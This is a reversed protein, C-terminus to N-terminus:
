PSMVTITTLQRIWRAARRDSPVVLRFPGEDSPLPQGNKRDALLVVRGSLASDVEALAFAVRYGDAATCLVTTTMAPGRLAAGTPAGSRALLDILAVGEYTAAPDGHASASVSMRPMTALEAATITFPHPVAGGITV